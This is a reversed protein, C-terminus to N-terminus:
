RGNKKFRPEVEPQTSSAQFMAAYNAADRLWAGLKQGATDAAAEWAQKEEVTCRFNVQPRSTTVAM